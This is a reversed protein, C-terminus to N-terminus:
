KTVCINHSGIGLVTKVADTVKQQIFPNDGGDCIILVGKIQPEIKTKILAQKRGNEDEIIIISDEYSNNNEANSKREEKTYVYEVDNKLTIMIEVNGVGAIKKVIALLEEKTSEIFQQNYNTENKLIVEEKKPTKSIFSSVAILLILIGGAFLAIYLKFDGKLKLM